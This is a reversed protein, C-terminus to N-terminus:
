LHPQRKNFLKESLKKVDMPSTEMIRGQKFGFKQAIYNEKERFVNPSMAKPDQRKAISKEEADDTWTLRIEGKSLYHQQACATPQTQAKKKKEEGSTANQKM